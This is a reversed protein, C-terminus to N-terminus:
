KRQQQLLRNFNEKRRKRDEKIKDPNEIQKRKRNEATREKSKRELEKLQEKTVNEKCKTAKVIHKLM